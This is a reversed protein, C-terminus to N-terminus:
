SKRSEQFLAMFNEKISSIIRIVVDHEGYSFNRSLSVRLKGSVTSTAISSLWTVVPAGV